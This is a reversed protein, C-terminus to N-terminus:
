LGTLEVFKAFTKRNKAMEDFSAIDSIRQKVVKKHHNIADLSKLMKIKALYMMNAEPTNSSRTDM